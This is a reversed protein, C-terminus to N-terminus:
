RIKRLTRSFRKDKKLHETIDRDEIQVNFRKEIDKLVEYLPADSLIAASESIQPYRKVLSWLSIANKRVILFPNDYCYYEPDPGEEYACGFDYLKEMEVIDDACRLLINYNHRDIQGMKLDVATMKMVSDVLSKSHVMDLISTECIHFRDLRTSYVKTDDPKAGYYEDVIFYSYGDQYFVESLAYVYEPLGEAIGIKYDVVDLGIMKCYSTGILENILTTYTCLKPYYYKGDIKVIKKTDCRMKPPANFTMVEDKSIPINDFYIVNSSDNLKM